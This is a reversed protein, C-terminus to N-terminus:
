QEAIAILTDTSKIRKLFEGKIGYYKTNCSGGGVQGTIKRTNKRNKINRKKYTM